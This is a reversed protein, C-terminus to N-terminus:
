PLAHVSPMVGVAHSSFGFSTPKYEGVIRVDSQEPIRDEMGLGWYVANVVLRRLGESEFDTSAGMTTTFVRSAKGGAGTYSRTWALPEMPDNKPGEVPPDSPSMGALVAGLLLM